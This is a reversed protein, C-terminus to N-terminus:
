RRVRTGRVELELLVGGLASKVTSHCRYHDDDGFRCIYSYSGALSIPPSDWTMTRRNEDWQGDALYYVVGPSTFIWLPYTRRIADFTMMSMDHQGDSKVGSDGQLFRNGLIWTNTVTSTVTAASPRTTVTEVKWRGQWRDLVKLAADVEAPSAPKDQAFAIQTASLCLAVIAACRAAQGSFWTARPIRLGSTTM